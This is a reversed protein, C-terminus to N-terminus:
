GGLPWQFIKGNIQKESIKSVSNAMVYGAGYNNFYMFVNFCSGLRGNQRSRVGVQAIQAGPHPRASNRRSPPDSDWRFVSAGRGCEGRSRPASALRPRVSRSLWLRTPPASGGHSTLYVTEHTPPGSAAAPAPVPSRTPPRECRGQLQQPDANGATLFILQVCRPLCPRGPPQTQSGPGWGRSHRCGASPAPVRPWSAAQPDQGLLVGAPFRLLQPGLQRRVWLALWCPM